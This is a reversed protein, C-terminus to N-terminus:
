KEWLHRIFEIAYLLFVLGLLMISVGLTYVFILRATENDTIVNIGLAIFSIAVFLLFLAVIM